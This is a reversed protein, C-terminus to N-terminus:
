NLLWNSWYSEFLINLIQHTKMFCLKSCQWQPGLIYSVSVLPHYSLFFACLSFNFSSLIITYLSFYYFFTKKRARANKREFVHSFSARLNWIESDSSAKSCPSVHFTESSSSAMSELHLHSFFERTRHKKFLLSFYSFFILCRLRFIVVAFKIACLFVKGKELGYMEAMCLHLRRKNPILLCSLFGEWYIKGESQRNSM